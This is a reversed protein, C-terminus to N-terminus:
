GAAAIVEKWRRPVASWAAMYTEELPVEVYFGPCLFVPMDVLVNGVSFPEIYARLRDDCEYAILSLPTEPSLKVPADEYEEFILAHLGDPDRSSIPFPDIILVHINQRLIRHVKQVFSRIGHASNKNGPSVIEIMAVVHDGSVHRISIGNKKRFNYESASEQFLKTRPRGQARTRELTTTTALGTEAPPEAADDNRPTLVDPGFGAAIQEALAYYDSPINANLAAKIRLIWELHFDHYIGADVRTWDHMSM